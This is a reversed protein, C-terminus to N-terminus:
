LEALFFYEDLGGILPELHFEGLIDSDICSISQKADVALKSM